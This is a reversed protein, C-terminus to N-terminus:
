NTVKLGSPASPKSPGPSSADSARLPHPYTYPTYGPKPIGNFIDRGIKIHTKNMDCNHQFFVVDNDGHKNNWAYAPDLAQPPYPNSSTWLWQDMSRGIQDRCPYGSQGDENGDWASTGNCMGPVGANTCSRVNDVAINPNTWTGTIVNNFVVGTGGRIFMPVWMGQKVQNFINNYIEWKRTARHNGQVSHAEVLSDNVTNYRFVYAGGYNADMCNGSKTFTFTCDEVYVASATGLGLPQAWVGHALLSLDACVAVKSNFFECNDVCGNLVWNSSSGNAYVGTRSVSISPNKFICHDVRWESGRISIADSSSYLNFGIGTIRSKSFNAYIAHSNSVNVTIITSSSGAGQLIIKKTDPIIVSSTWTFDGAPISVTDGSRASTIASQVDSQSGSVAVITSSQATGALSLNLSMMLGALFVMYKKMVSVGKLVMVIRKACGSDQRRVPNPSLFNPRM